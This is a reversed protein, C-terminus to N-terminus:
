HIEIGIVRGTDDLDVVILGGDVAHYTVSRKAIPGGGDFEIGLSEQPSPDDGWTAHKMLLDVLEDRTIIM